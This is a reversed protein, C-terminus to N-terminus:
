QPVSQHSKVLEIVVDLQHQKENIQKILDNVAPYESALKSLKQEEDRKKRAWELLETTDANLSIDVNSSLELWNTGDYVEMHNGSGNYRVIGASPSSMNIYPLSRSTIRLGTGTINKIM